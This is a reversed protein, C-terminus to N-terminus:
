GINLISLKSKKPLSKVHNNLLTTNRLLFAKNPHWTPGHSSLHATLPLAPKPPFAPPPHLPLYLAFLPFTLPVPGAQTDVHPRTATAAMNSRALLHCSSRMMSTTSEYLLNQILFHPQFTAYFLRLLHLLTQPDQISTYATLLLGPHSNAHTYRGSMM